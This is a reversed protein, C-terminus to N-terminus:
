QMSWGFICFKWITYNLVEYLTAMTPFYIHEQFFRQNKPFAFLPQKLFSIHNCPKVNDNPSKNKFHFHLQM